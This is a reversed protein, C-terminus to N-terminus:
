YNFPFFIGKGEKWNVFINKHQLSTFGAILYLSLLHFLEPGRIKSMIIILISILNCIVFEM